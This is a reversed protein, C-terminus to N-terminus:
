KEKLSIENTKIRDDGRKCKIRTSSKFYYKFMRTCNVLQYNFFLNVNSSIFLYVVSSSIIWNLLFNVTAFTSLNLM